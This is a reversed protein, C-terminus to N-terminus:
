LRYPIRVLPDDARFGSDRTVLVQNRSFATALVIADLLKLKRDTRLRVAHRAIEEDIELVDCRDALFGEVEARADAPVGVLVEMWTIISVAPRGVADFETKAPVHGNLYDIIINTDFVAM